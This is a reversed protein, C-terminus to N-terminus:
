TTLRVVNSVETRLIASSIIKSKRGGPIQPKHLGLIKSHEIKTLDKAADKVVLKNLATVARPLNWHTFNFPVAFGLLRPIGYQCSCGRDCLAPSDRDEIRPAERLGPMDRNALVSVLRKCSIYAVCRGMEADEFAQLVFVM